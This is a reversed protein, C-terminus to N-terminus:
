IAFLSTSVGCFKRSAKSPLNQKHFLTIKQLKFDIRYNRHSLYKNRCIVESVIPWYSDNYGTVRQQKSSIIIHHYAIYMYARGFRIHTYKRHYLLPSCCGPVQSHRTASVFLCRPLSRSSCLVDSISDVIHRCGTSLFRRLRCHLDHYDV